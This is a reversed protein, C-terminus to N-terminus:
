SALIGSRRSSLNPVRGGLETQESTIPKGGNPLPGAKM